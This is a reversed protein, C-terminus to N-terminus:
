PSGRLRKRRGRSGSPKSYKFVNLIKKVVFRPPTANIQVHESGSM